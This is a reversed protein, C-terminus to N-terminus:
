FTRNANLAKDLPNVGEFMKDCLRGVAHVKKYYQLFNKIDM